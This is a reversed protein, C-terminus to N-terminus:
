LFTYFDKVYQIFQPTLDNAKASNQIVLEKKVVQDSPYFRLSLLLREVSKHALSRVETIRSPYLHYQRAIEIFRIGEVHPLILDFTGHPSMLKRVSSLLDSHSLKITHRVRSKNENLSLTGGTFFPPNSVIHDYQNEPTRSFNQISDLIVQIRDSFISRLVNSFAEECSSSDIDIADICVDPSRQAMMLAIVGTGTGIDLVRTRDTLDTWAGLLIGDTNVKMASRNQEVEFKKFKFPSSMKQSNEMVCYHPTYDVHAPKHDMPFDPLLSPNEQIPPPNAM